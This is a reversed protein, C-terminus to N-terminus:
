ISCPSVEQKIKEQPAVALDFANQLNLWFGPTTGFFASLRVATDAAISRKQRIIATVRSHPMNTQKALQYQTISMPELFELKLIEGPHVPQISQPMESGKKLPLRSNQRRLRGSGM